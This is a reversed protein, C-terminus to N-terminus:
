SVVFFWCNENARERSMISFSPALLGWIFRLSVNPNMNFSSDFSGYIVEILEFIGQRRLLKFKRAVKRSIARLKDITYYRTYCMNSKYPRYYCHSTNGWWTTKIVFFHFCIMKKRNDFSSHIEALINTASHVIGHLRAFFFSACLFSHTRIYMYVEM